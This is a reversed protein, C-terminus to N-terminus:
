IKNMKPFFHRLKHTDRINVRNLKIWIWFHHGVWLLYKCRSFYVKRESVGVVKFITNQPSFVVCFITSHSRKKISSNVWDLDMLWELWLTISHSHKLPAYLLLIPSIILINLNVMSKLDPTLKLGLLSKFCSTENLSWDSMLLPTFKPDAWHHHRYRILYPICMLYALNDKAILIM